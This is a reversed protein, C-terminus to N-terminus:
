FLNTQARKQTRFEIKMLSQSSKKIILCLRKRKQKLMQVLLCTHVRMEWIKDMKQLSQRISDQERKVELIIYLRRLTSSQEVVYLAKEKLYQILTLNKILYRRTKLYQNKFILDDKIFKKTLKFNPEFNLKRKLSTKTNLTKLSLLVRIKKKLIRQISILLLFAITLKISLFM